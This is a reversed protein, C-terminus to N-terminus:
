SHRHTANHQLMNCHTLHTATHQLTNCHTETRQLSDHIFYSHMVGLYTELKLSRRAYVQAAIDAREARMWVFTQENCTSAPVDVCMSTGPHTHTVDCLHNSDRQHKMCPASFCVAVRQLVSCCAACVKLKNIRPTNVSAAQIQANSDFIVDPPYCFIWLFFREAMLVYKKSAPPWSSSPCTPSFHGQSTPAIHM